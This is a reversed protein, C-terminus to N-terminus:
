MRGAASYRTEGLTGTFELEVLEGADIDASTAGEETTITSDTVTLKHAQPESHDSIYAYMGVKLESVSNLLELSTLINGNTWDSFSVFLQGVENPELHVPASAKDSPLYSSSSNTQYVRVDIAEDGFNQVTYTVGYAQTEVVQYKSLFLTHWGAPVVQEPDAIEATGGM